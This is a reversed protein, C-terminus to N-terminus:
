LNPGGRREFQTHQIKFHKEAETMSADELIPKVYEEYLQQKNKEDEDSDGKPEKEEGDSDYEGDEDKFPRIESVQDSYWRGTPYKEAKELFGKMIYLFVGIFEKEPLKKGDKNGWGWNLNSKDPVGPKFGDKAARILMNKIIRAVNKGTHGHFDYIGEYREDLCSFNGTIYLEDVVQGEVIIEIDHGM